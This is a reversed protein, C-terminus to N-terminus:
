PSAANAVISLANVVCCSDCMIFLWVDCNAANAAVSLANMGPMFCMYYYCFVCDAVCVYDAM